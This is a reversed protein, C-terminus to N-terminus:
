DLAERALADEEAGLQLQGDIEAKRRALNDAAATLIRKADDMPLETAAFASITHLRVLHEDDGKGAAKHNVQTVKGRLLIAVEEGHHLARPAVRLAESLGDGANTIRIQSAAVEQGEFEPLEDAQMVATM